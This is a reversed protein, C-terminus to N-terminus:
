RPVSESRPIYILNPRMPAGTVPVFTESDKFITGVPKYYREIGVSEPMSGMAAEDMVIVSFRKDRLAQHVDRLLQKAVPDDPGALMTDKINQASAHTKKGALMVLYEHCPVAVNGPMGGLSTIFRRGAERDAETPVQAVPDYVLVAFQLLVLAYVATSWAWHRRGSTAAGIRQLAEHAAFALLLALSAYAPMLVNLYGGTYLRSGYAGAGMGAAFSGYFLLGSWERRRTRWFLFLLSGALAVPITPLIDETWFGVLMTSWRLAHHSPTTFVYYNYWGDYHRNLAWVSGAVLLAFSGVLVFARRPAILFSAICLPAVIVLTTQKTQFALTFLVAAALYGKWTSGHHRLLYVGALVLFLFFSDLRALDFWAGSAEFTAAYLSVALFGAFVSNRERRAMQFLLIFVGIASVLSVMRLSTIHLGSVACVAASLYYYLPTYGCAIVELSPRAYLKGTLITNAFNVSSGELWELEYPYTIRFVAIAFFMAIYAVGALIVLLRAIRPLVSGIRDM